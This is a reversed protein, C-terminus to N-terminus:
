NDLSAERVKMVIMQEYIAQLLAYQFGATGDLFGRKVVYTMLFKLVPRCPLRYFIEKQHFRRELADSATFAKRM